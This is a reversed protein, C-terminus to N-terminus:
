SCFRYETSLASLTPAADTFTGHIKMEKVALFHNKEPQDFNFVRVKREETEGNPKKYTVPIGERLMEYKNKNIQMLTDSATFALLTKIATNCLEDTLWDNFEFM